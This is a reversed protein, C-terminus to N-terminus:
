DPIHMEETDKRNETQDESSTCGGKVRTPPRPGAGGGGGDCHFAHGPRLHTSKRWGQPVAEWGRHQITKRHHALSKLEYNTASHELEQAETVHM